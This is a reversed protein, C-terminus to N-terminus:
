KIIENTLNKVLQGKINYIDLQVKGQEKTTFSITTEPNFPNPFNGIIADTVQNTDQGSNPTSTVLEPVFLLSTGNQIAQSNLDYENSFTYELGDHGDPSTIGITAYEGHSVYFTGYSGLDCNNITNYNFQFANYGSITPYYDTGMIVLQFIENINPNFKSVANWQIIFRNNPEDHYYYVGNTSYPYLLGDWFPAVLPNPVGPGPIARNMWDYSDSVGAMVFGNTCLTINNFTEGYYYFPFPLSVVESAGGGNSNINDFEFTNTEALNTPSIDFWEYAPAVPGSDLNSYCLYGFNDPGTPYDLEGTYVQLNFTLEKSYNTGTKEFTLTFPVVTGPAIESSASVAYSLNVSSNSYSLSIHQPEDLVTIESNDTNLAVAILDFNFFTEAELQVNINTIATPSIFDDADSNITLPGFKISNEIISLTSSYDGQDSSLNLTLNVTENYYVSNDLEIPITIFATFNEFISIEATPSNNVKLGEITISCNELTEGTGNNLTIGLDFTSGAMIPSETETSSVTVGESTDIIELAKESTFFEDKKCIVQVISGSLTSLNFTYHGEDDTKGSLVTLNDTISATANPIPNGALDRYLITLYNDNNSIYDVSEMVTLTLQKRQIRVSPDGLLNMCQMYQDVFSTPNHPYNRILQLKGYDLSGGMTNNDDIYIAEAMAEILINNLCTHTESSAGVVGIAGAPATSSGVRLLSECVSDSYPDNYVNTHCTIFAGFFLKRVNLLNNAHYGTFGSIGAFGRYFLTSVGLNIASSMQNEISGGTILSNNHGPAYENIYDQIYEVAIVTSSGSDAPDGVLLTNNLYSSDPIFLDKEYSIIKDVLSLLQSANQISLRGIYADPFNDDDELMTYQYDGAVMNYTFNEYNPPIPYSNTDGVLCIWKPPMDWTNYGDVLTAKIENFTDGNQYTNITRVKYGCMKKWNQLKHIANLFNNNQPDSNYIIVYYGEENFARTNIFNPNISQNKYMKIDDASLKFESVKISSDKVFEIDIMADEIVNITESKADYEVPTIAISCFRLGKYKYVKSIRVASKPFPLREEAPNSLLNIDSYPSKNVNTVTLKVECQEPVIVLKSYQPLNYGHVNWRIDEQNKEDLKIINKESTANVSYEGLNWELSLKNQNITTSQVSVGYMSSMLLLIIPIFLKRM